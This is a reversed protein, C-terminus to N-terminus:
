RPLSFWFRSGEGLTSEVGIEGGHAKVALKCFALGLGVSSDVTSNSAFPKFVQALFGPAIGTGTDRVGVCVSDGTELLSVAINGTGPTYKVANDILNNLVRRIMIPDYNTSGSYGNFYLRFKPSSPLGGYLRVTDQVDQALNSPELKAKLAGHSLSELDVLSTLLSIAHQCSKLGGDVYRKRNDPCEEEAIMDLYGLVILLPTRLDHALMSIAYHEKEPAVFTDPSLTTPM